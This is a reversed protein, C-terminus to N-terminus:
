NKNILEEKPIQNQFSESFINFILSSALLGLIGSILIFIINELSNKNNIDRNKKAKISVEQVIEEINVEKRETKFESMIFETDVKLKESIRRVMAKIFVKEPLHDENGEEIAQLQHSGIKLDSALEAISKNRSLRAEKIFNGIRKLSANNDSNNSKIEDM